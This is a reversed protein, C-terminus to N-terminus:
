AESGWWWGMTRGALTVAVAGSINELLLAFEEGARIIVPGALEPPNDLPGIAGVVGGLPPVPNRNILTTVRTNAADSTSIGVRRCVGTAGQPILPWAVIISGGAAVAVPIRNQPLDVSFHIAPPYIWPPQIVPPGTGQRGEAATPPVPTSIRRRGIVDAPTPWPPTPHLRPDRRRPDYGM